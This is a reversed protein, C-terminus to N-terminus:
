SISSHIADYAEEESSTFIVRPADSTSRCLIRIMGQMSTLFVRTTIFVTLRIGPHQRSLLNKVVMMAELPVARSQRMDGIVCVPYDVASALRTEARSAQYADNWTWYRPFTWRIIAKDSNDWDVAISMNSQNGTHSDEM